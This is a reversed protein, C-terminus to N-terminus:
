DLRFCACRTEEGAAGPIVEFVRWTTGVETPNLESEQITFKDGMAPTLGLSPRVLFTALTRQIYGGRLEDATRSSTSPSKAVTYQETAANLTIVVAWIAARQEAAQAAYQRTQRRSFSAPM